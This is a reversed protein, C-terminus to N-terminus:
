RPSMSCGPCEAQWGVSVLRAEKQPLPPSAICMGAVPSHHTDFKNHVVFSPAKLKENTDTKHMGFRARDDRKTPEAPCADDKKHSQFTKGVICAPNIDALIRSISVSGITAGYPGNQIDAYM